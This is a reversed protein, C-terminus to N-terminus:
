NLRGDGQPLREVQLLRMKLTYRPFKYRSLEIREPIGEQNIAYARVQRSLHDSADYQRIAWGQQPNLLVDVASGDATRWRCGPLGNDFVGATVVAKGPPSFVLRVDAMMSEAFEPSDFPYVARDVTLAQQHRADFLVFGEITMIVCRVIGRAPDLTVVGMATVRSDDPLRAEIAHVFQHPGAPFVSQCRQHLNPQLGPGPPRIEPLSSCATLVFVVFILCLVTGPRILLPIM